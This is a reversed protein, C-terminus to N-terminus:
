PSVKFDSGLFVGDSDYWGNRSPLFSLDKTPIQGSVKAGDHMYQITSNNKGDVYYHLSPAPHDLNVGVLFNTKEAWRVEDETMENEPTFPQSQACKGFLNEAVEKLDDIRTFKGKSVTRLAARKGKHGTSDGKSHRAVPGEPIALKEGPKGGLWLFPGLELTDEDVVLWLVCGSPKEALALNIDVRSRKGGVRMAKLQIHRIHGNAEMVIDYGNSDFEARLTEFPLKMDLLLVKSLEAVFIHEM